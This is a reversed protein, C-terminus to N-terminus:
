KVEFRAVNDRAFPAFNFPKGRVEVEISDARGIVVVLPLVGGCEVKEGAGVNRRLRIEGNADVVEVWVPQHKARFSMVRESGPVAPSPSGPVPVVGQLGAAVAPPATPASSALAPEVAPITSVVPSPSAAVDGVPEALPAAPIVVPAMVQSAAVDDAVAAVAVEDQMWWGSAFMLIAGVCLVLVLLARPQLLYESLPKSHGGSAVSFPANIGNDDVHLERVTTQPLADLIPKADIKLARCVSSALARTFVVDHTQQLQDSELAELKKVPIKIAVALAAIHLGAKERAARLMAGASERSETVLPPSGEDRISESESM